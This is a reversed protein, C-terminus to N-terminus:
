FRINILVYAVVCLVAFYFSGTQIRYAIREKFDPEKRLEIPESSGKDAAENTLREVRNVLARPRLMIRHQVVIGAIFSALLLALAIKAIITYSDSDAIWNSRFTTLLGIAGTSLSLILTTFKRYLDSHEDLLRKKLEWESQM